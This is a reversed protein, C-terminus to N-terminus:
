VDTSRVGESIRQMPDEGVALVGRGSRQMAHVRLRSPRASIASPLPLASSVGAAKFSTHAFAEQLPLPITASYNARAYLSGQLHSACDM